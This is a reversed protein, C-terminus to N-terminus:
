DATESQTNESNEESKAPEPQNKEADSSVIAVTELTIPLAGSKLQIELDEAAAQTFNGSIVATGGTIGTQAYSVDVTPTSLLVDDLFLGVARGTGAMQKTQEAFLVDGEENFQINVDWTGPASDSPRARADHLKDGTLTSPEFLTAIASRTDDIQAQLAQAEDTKGQQSRTNQEVLLRQLEAIGQALEEATDPKQNRLYLQGTNTLLTQVAQANVTQPLRVIIENPEAIEIEALEIGLGILRKELTTKAAELPNASTETDAAKDTERNTEESAKESAKESAEDATLTPAQLTIQTYDKLRSSCAFSLSSLLALSLLIKRPRPSLLTTMTRPHADHPRRM